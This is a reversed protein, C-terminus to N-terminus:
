EHGYDLRKIEVRWGYPLFSMLRDGEEIWTKSLSSNWIDNIADFVERDIPVHFQQKGKDDFVVYSHIKVKEMVEEM